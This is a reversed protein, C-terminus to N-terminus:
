NLSTLMELYYQWYQQKSSHLFSFPSHCLFFTCWLIYSLLISIPHCPCTILSCSSGAPHSLTSTPAPIYDLNSARGHLIFALLTQRPMERAAPLTLYVVNVRATTTSTGAREKRRITISREHPSDKRLNVFPSFNPLTTKRDPGKARSDSQTSLQVSGHELSNDGRQNKTM